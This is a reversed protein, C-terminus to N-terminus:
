GKMESLILNWYVERYEEEDITVTVDIEAGNSLKTLEKIENVAKKLNEKLSGDMYSKWLRKISSTSTIKLMFVVSGRLLTVLEAGIERFFPQLNKLKEPNMEYISMLTAAAITM